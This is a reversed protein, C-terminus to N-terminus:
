DKCCRFGTSYDYYKPSHATTKYDCGDGHQHTDLYYGGRFTGKSGRPSSTWEHLNGVMDYVEYSGKCRRFAGTKAVTGKMQNLRPDNMNTWTYAERPAEVGGVGFYRNFSSVGSDNCAGPKHDDGYPYRTPSKGKCATIWEEDSCLRKGANQCAAEAQDRSIHAQQIVGRKAVARVVLGDVPEFPSHKRVKAKSKAQRGADKAVGLLEVTSAEYRDICFKGRISAMGDPCGKGKAQAGEMSPMGLVLLGAGLSLWGLPSRFLRPLQMRETM